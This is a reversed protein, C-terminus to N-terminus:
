RMAGKRMAMVLLNDEWQRYRRNKKDECYQKRPNESEEEQNNDGKEKLSESRGFDGIIEEGAPSSEM